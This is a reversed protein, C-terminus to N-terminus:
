DDEESLSSQSLISSFRNIVPPPGNNMPSPRQVRCHTPLTLSTSAFKEETFDEYCNPRSRQLTMTELDQMRSSEDGGGVEAGPLTHAAHALHQRVEGRHFGRLLESSEAALDDDGPRQVRCHTPLTLSTSAFKEETFDEYCNPRSRQLTMTELDQMRSSEDGSPIVDSRCNECEDIYDEDNSDLRLPRPNTFPLPNSSTVCPSPSILVIHSSIATSHSPNPTGVSPNLTVASPNLTEASPNLTEVSSKADGCLSKADGCLSKADGCLSKADGCLSKADGCLSKADSSPALPTTFYNPITSHHSSGYSSSITAVSARATVGGSRAHHSVPHTVHHGPTQKLSNSLITDYQKELALYNTHLTKGGGAKGTKIKPMTLNRAGSNPGHQVKKHKKHAHHGDHIKLEHHKRDVDARSPFTRSDSEHTKTLYIYDHKNALKAMETCKEYKPYHASNKCSLRDSKDHSKEREGSHNKDHYKDNSAGPYSAREKCAAMFSTANPSPVNAYINQPSMGGGPAGGVGPPMKHKGPTKPPTQYSPSKLLDLPTNGQCSSPHHSHSPPPHTPPDTSTNSNPLLSTSTNSIPALSTSTPTPHRTLSPHRTNDLANSTQSAQPLTDYHVNSRVIVATTTTTAHSNGSLLNLPITRHYPMTVTSVIGLSPTDTPISHTQLAAEARAAAVAEEYPPPAEGAPFYGHPKWLAAHPPEYAVYEPLYRISGRISGEIYGIRNDEVGLPRPQRGRLKRKKLRHILFAVLSM